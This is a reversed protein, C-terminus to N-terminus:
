RAQPRQADDLPDLAGRPGSGLRDRAVRRPRGPRAVAARDDSRPVPSARGARMAGLERTRELISAGLTDGTALAAVLLTLLEIMTTLSTGRRVLRTFYRSMEEASLARIRYRPGLGRMVEARVLDVAAGPALLLHARNIRSDRWLRRYLDRSMGLDGAPSVFSFTALGATVVEVKGAPTDLTLLDGARLRHRRALAPSAIVAQGRAVRELADPIQDQIEWDAFRSSRFYAPDFAVVGFQERGSDWAVAREGSVAAVGPLEALERLIEDSLPVNDNGELFESFVILDAQRSRGLTHAVFREFSRGVIAFWVVASFGVVLISLMAVGREPVRLLDAIALRTAPGARDVLKGLPRELCAVLPAITACAAALSAPIALLGFVGHGSALEAAVLGLALLVLAARLPSWRWWSRGPALLRGRTSLVEVIPARAARLAPALAAAVTSLLAVSAVLLFPGPRLPVEIPRGPLAFNLATMDALRGLLGRSLFAGAPLGLAVGLLGLVLSEKLLERVVVRRRGGLARSVGVEWLRQVILMSLRNFTILFAVLLGVMGFADLMLQFAAILKRVDAKRRLAKEVRLGAPLVSRLREEVAAVAVGPEVQVDIQTVRNEGLFIPQAAYLDMVLLSGGFPPSEGALELVGRVTVARLGTPTVLRFSDGRALGRREMFQRTVLVSDARSLFELPDDMAFGGQDHMRFLHATDADLMDVAVVSLIEGSQDGVFATATLRPAALSVGPVARVAPVIDADLAASSAPGGAVVQLDARGAIADISEELSALIAGNVLLVGLSLAVGLGIALVTAALKGRAHSVQRRAIALHLAGTM